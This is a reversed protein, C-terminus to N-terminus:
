IVDSFCKGGPAADKHAGPDEAAIVVKGNSGRLRHVRTLHPRDVPQGRFIALSQDLLSAIGHGWVGLQRHQNHGVAQRGKVTNPPTFPAQLAYGTLPRDQVSDGLVPELGKGVRAEGSTM